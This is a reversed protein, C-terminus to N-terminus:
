QSDEESNDGRRGEIEWLTELASPTVDKAHRALRKNLTEHARRLHGLGRSYLDLDTHSVAGEAAAMRGEIQELAVELTVIRRLLSREAMSTSEVGGLDALHAQWLSKARRAWASRGDTSPLLPPIQPHSAVPPHDAGSGGKDAESGAEVPRQDGSSKRTKARQGAVQGPSLEKGWPSTRSAL